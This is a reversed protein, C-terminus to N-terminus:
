WLMADAYKRMARQSRMSGWLAGQWNAILDPSMMEVPGGMPIIKLMPRDGTLVAMAQHIARRWVNLKIPRRYSPLDAGSWQNGGIFDWVKNLKSVNTHAKRADSAHETLDFVWAALKRAKEPSYGDDGSEPALRTEVADTLPREIM